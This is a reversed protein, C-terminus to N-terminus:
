FRVHYHVRSRPPAHRYHRPGYHRPGYYHSPVYVRRPAPTVVVTPTERVVVPASVASTIVEAGAPMRQAALVVQDSVGQQKLAILGQPSLDLRAGRSQMTSVILQDSVGAHTMELLDDNTVAMAMAQDNLHQVAARGSAARHADAEDKSRGMLNGTVAGIGAGILAGEDRNKKGGAIAGTLAGLAGGLITGSATDNHYYDPSPQYYYAQAGADRGLGAALAATITVAILKSSPITNM